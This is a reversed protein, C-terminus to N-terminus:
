GGTAAALRRKRQNQGRASRFLSRAVLDTVERKRREITQAELLNVNWLRRVVAATNFYGLTISSLSLLFHLPHVERRFEGQEQGQRIFRLLTKILPPVRRKLLQRGTGKEEIFENWVIRSFDPHSAIFDISDEIAVRMRQQRSGRGAVLSEVAEELRTFIRDLMALYLEDKSSFHHLLSPAKIGIRSSIDRLSTGRYGREAFLAQAVRLVRDRTGLGRHLDGSIRVGARPLTRPM